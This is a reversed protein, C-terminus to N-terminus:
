SQSVTRIEKDPCECEEFLQQCRGCGLLCCIEQEPPLLAERCVFQGELLVLGGRGGVDVDVRGLATQMKMWGYGSARSKCSATLYKLCVRPTRIDCDGCESCGPIGVGCEVINGGGGVREKM